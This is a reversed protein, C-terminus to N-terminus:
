ATIRDPKPKGKLNFKNFSAKADGKKLMLRLM